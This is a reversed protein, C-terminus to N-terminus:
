VRKESTLKIENQSTEVIRELVECHRKGCGYHHEEAVTKGSRHSRLTYARVNHRSKRKHNDREKDRYDHRKGRSANRSFARAEIMGFDNGYAVRM